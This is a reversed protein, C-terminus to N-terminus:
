KRKANKNANKRNPTAPEATRLLKLVGARADDFPGPDQQAIALVYGGQLVAVIRHRRGTRADLAKQAL